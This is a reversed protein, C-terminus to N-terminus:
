SLSIATPIRKRSHNPRAQRTMPDMCTLTWPSGWRPTSHSFSQNWRSVVTLARLFSALLSNWRAAPLQTVLSFYPMVPSGSPLGLWLAKLDEEFKIELPATWYSNDWCGELPKGRPSTREQGVTWQRVPQLGFESSCVSLEALPHRFRLSIKFRHPRPEQEM